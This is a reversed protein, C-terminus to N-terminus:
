QDIYAIIKQAFGKDTIGIVVREDKGVARGLTRRDSVIRAPVNYYACKDLIKKKTNESADSSLLIVYIRKRRVEKIVLEEGTIVKRARTALGLLSLWKNETM